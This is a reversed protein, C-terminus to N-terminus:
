ISECWADCGTLGRFAATPHRIVQIATAPLPQLIRGVFHVPDVAGRSARYRRLIEDAPDQKLLSIAVDAEILCPTGIKKLIAAINPDDARSNYLAEGGWYRFFDRESKRSPPFFCFAIKGARNAEHAQNKAKLAAAVAPTFGGNAACADIRRALMDKDLLQMGGTQINGIERDTLRTCHWGKIAYPRLVDKLAEGSDGTEGDLFDLLAKPWTEPRELNIVEPFDSPSTMLLM